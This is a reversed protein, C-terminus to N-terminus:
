DGQKPLNVVDSDDPLDSLDPAVLLDRIGQIQEGFNTCDSCRNLHVKLQLRQFLGLPEDQAELLLEAVKRCSYM